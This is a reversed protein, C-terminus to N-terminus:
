ALITFYQRKGGAEVERQRPRKSGLLGADAVGGDHVDVAIADGIAGPDGFWTRRVAGHGGYAMLRNVATVNGQFLTSSRTSRLSADPLTVSRIM